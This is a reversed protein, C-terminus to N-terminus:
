PDFREYPPVYVRKDLSAGNQSGNRQDARQSTRTPGRRSGYPGPPETVVGREVVSTLTGDGHVYGSGDLGLTPDLHCTTCQVGSMTGPCVSLLTSLKGRDIDHVSVSRLGVYKIIISTM